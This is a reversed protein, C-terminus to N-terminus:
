SRLEELKKKINRIDWELEQMLRVKKQEQEDVEFGSRRKEAEEYVKNTIYKELDTLKSIMDKISVQEIPTELDIIPEVVSTVDERNPVAPAQREAIQPIEKLFDPMEEKPEQIEPEPKIVFINGNRVEIDENETFNLANKVSLLCPVNFERCSVALHSSLGAAPSIIGASNIMAEFLLDDSRSVALVQESGISPILNASPKTIKGQFDRPLLPIGQAQSEPDAEAKFHLPKKFANTIPEVGVVRLVKNINWEIHQPFKFQNEVKIAIEILEELEPTSLPAKTQYEDPLQQQIVESLQSKKTLYNVQRSTSSEEVQKTSKSIIFRSPNNFNTSMMGWIAQLYVQENQNTLPNVTFTDGSKSAATTRYVTIAPLYDKYNLQNNAMYYLAKPSFLRIWFQRITNLLKTIGIVNYIREFTILHQQLSLQLTLPVLDRGSKILEAARTPIESTVSNSLEKYAQLLDAQLEESIEQNMLITQINTSVRKASQFDDQLTELEHEVVVRINNFFENFADVSIVFFRPIKIDLNKLRSLNAAKEGVVSDMDKSINDGWIIRPNKAM